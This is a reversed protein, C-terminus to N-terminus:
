RGKLNAPTMVWLNHKKCNISSRFIFIACAMQFLFNLFSLRLAIVYNEFSKTLLNTLILALVHSYYTNALLSPALFLNSDAFVFFSFAMLSKIHAPGSILLRIREKLENTNSEAQSFTTHEAMRKLKWMDHKIWTKIKAFKEEVKIYNSAQPIEFISMKWLYDKM